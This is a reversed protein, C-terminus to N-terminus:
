KLNLNKLVAFPNDEDSKNEAEIKIVRPGQPKKPGKSKKHKTKKNDKKHPAEGDFSKAKSKGSYGKQGGKNPPTSLKGKKLKFLALQPKEPEKNTEAAAEEKNEVKETETQDEAQDEVQDAAQVEAEQATQASETKEVPEKGDDKKVEAVEEVKFHGLGELVSYLADVSCGLWEAYKHQARFSGEKAQEYIDTVVRDLMDIRIARGAYVPYGLMKYYGYDIREDDLLQSVIGDKPRKVPLEKENFIGWLVSKLKLPAPKLHEQYFIMLPGSRIKHQRLIKRLEPDLTSLSRNLKYRDVV